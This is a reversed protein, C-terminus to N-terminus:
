SSLCTLSGSCQQVNCLARFGVVLPQARSVSADAAVGAPGAPGQRTEDATSHSRPSPARRLCRNSHTCVTLFARCQDSYAPPLMDAVPPGSMITEFLKVIIQTQISAYPYQGLAAEVLVFGASYLDVSAGFAM